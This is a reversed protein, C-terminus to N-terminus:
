QTELAILNKGFYDQLVNVLIEKENFGAIYRCDIYKWIKGDRFINMAKGNGYRTPHNVVSSEFISNFEEEKLKAFVKM